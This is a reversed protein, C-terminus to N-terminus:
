SKDWKVGLPILSAMENRAQGVAVRTPKQKKSVGGKIQPGVDYLLSQLELIDLFDSNAIREHIAKNFVQLGRMFLPWLAAGPLPITESALITKVNGIRSLEEVLKVTDALDEITEWPLNLLFSACLVDIGVDALNQVARIHQEKTVNKNMLQLLRDSGSECGIFVEKVKMNKLLNIREPYLLDTSRVFCYIQLDEPAHNSVIGALMNLRGLDGTVESDVLWVRDPSIKCLSKFDGTVDDQRLEVYNQCNTCFVCANSCGLQTIWPLSTYGSMNIDILHYNIPCLPRTYLLTEVVHDFFETMTIFVHDFKKTKGKAWQAHPGGLVTVAEFKVKSFEALELANKYSFANASIAVMEPNFEIMSRKIQAHSLLNGDLFITEYACSFAYFYTKAILMWIPQCIEPNKFGLDSGANFFCIKMKM